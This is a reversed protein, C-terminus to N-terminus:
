RSDALSKDIENIEKLADAKAQMAKIYRRELSALVEYNHKLNANVSRLRAASMGVNSRAEFEARSVHDSEALAGRWYNLDNYDRKRRGEQGAIVAEKDAMEGGIIRMGRERSAVIDNLQKRRKMLADCDIVARPSQEYTYPEPDYIEPEPIPEVNFSKVEPPPGIPKYNYKDWWMLATKIAVCTIGIILIWKITKWGRRQFSELNAEDEKIREMVRFRHEGLQERTVDKFHEDVWKAM